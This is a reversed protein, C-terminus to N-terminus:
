KPFQEGAKFRQEAEDHIESESKLMDSVAQAFAIRAHPAMRNFDPGKSGPFRGAELQFDADLETLLRDACEQDLVLHGKKPKWYPDPYYYIHTGDQLRAFWVKIVEAWFKQMNEAEVWACAKQMDPKEERWRDLTTRYVDGVTTTSYSGM